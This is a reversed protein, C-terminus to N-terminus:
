DSEVLVEGKSTIRAQLRKATAEPRVDVLDGVSGSRLARGPLSVRLGPRAVTIVVRDGARVATVRQLLRDDLYEGRRLPGITKYRSIEEGQVVFGTNLLSVDEEGFVVSEESLDFDSPLDMAARAVPLFHHIWIRFSGELPKAAAPPAGATYGDSDREGTSTAAALVRYTVQMTGVPITGAALNRRYGSSYPSRSSEFVIRDEWGPAMGRQQAASRGPGELLLPPSLLEIEIRGQKYADRADVFDLLSEYFWRRDEAIAGAPLIAIRAGIVVAQGCVAAVREQIVRAPLLTARAPTPGLPLRALAQSRAPDSGYV